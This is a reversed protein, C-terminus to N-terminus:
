RPCVINGKFFLSEAMVEQVELYVSPLVARPMSDSSPVVSGIWSPGLMLMLALPLDLGPFMVFPLAVKTAKILNLISDTFGEVGEIFLDFVKIERPSAM